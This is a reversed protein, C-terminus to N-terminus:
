STSKTSTHKDIHRWCKPSFAKTNTRRHWKNSNNTEACHEWKHLSGQPPTTCRSNHTVHMRVSTTEQKGRLCRSSQPWINTGSNRTTESSQWVRVDSKYYQTYIYIYIWINIDISLRVRSACACASQCMCLKLMVSYAHYNLIKTKFLTHKNNACIYTVACKVNTIRPQQGCVTTATQTLFDYRVASGQGNIIKNAASPCIITKFQMWSIWVPNTTIHFTHSHCM